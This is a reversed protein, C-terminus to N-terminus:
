HGGKARQPDDGAPPPTAPGQGQGGAFPDGHQRTYHELSLPASRHDPMAPNPNRIRALYTTRPQIDLFGLVSYNREQAKLQSVRSAPDSLDGFVIAEAPCAQACAPTITGDPVKVQDTPGAKIKQAIKAQEIRQVCYTCKEMVGRMRITVEPNKLMRVLDLEDESRRALPGRYLHQIPRKNYDFFNFRRVKYPCNNSCYRTGVCRNYAMVNLGEEDHVTANVPCVNECPANECHQCFMPQYAVQPDDIQEAAPRDPPGSFYRDIRIWHMERGRAVQERGVIPINNESQCAMVCAGCGVCANLDIAMGWQHLGNLPPRSYIPGANPAHAELGMRSKAFDPQQRYQELNAERIIPRGEMAGHDQTCGIRYDQNLRGMQRVRAGLALHLAAATRLRYANFGSGTGVRGTRERGYGLALGLTDDAMGPTIWAPGRLTRGELEVELMDFNRAGIREATKRSILIANEWTLKTIPDPMEQLWGNNNYRGDDMSYDRYFVLECTDGSPGRKAQALRNFAQDLSELNPKPEIPGPASHALFGDHLFQKWPEEFDRDEVKQRFTERVLSHPSPDPEGLIRALLEIKTMGNFLPQLLPQVPVWTGDATRADGWSELYHAAPVHWDCLAATEDEYAGLRLTTKAKKQLEAWRMEAPATYAPNAGLIVLTDVQGAELAEALHALTGARPTPDPRFRVTRGVNGLRQNLAFALAHVDEPLRHGALVLGAGRNAELDKACQRIWDRNVVAGLAAPADGPDGSGDGWGLERALQVLVAPIRSAPVRLRHDANAGTVTMLAEVMYLRAAIERAPTVRRGRAFRHIHLFADPETGLFDADLSLICRAKDLAYEPTAPAGCFASAVRSAVGVDIAEHTHWSSQPYKERLLRRLRELTPSSTEEALFYLGRGQNVAATKALQALFEVVGEPKTEDGKRRCRMARDPDYLDLISAQAFADTGGCGLPHQPNGEIKIPRGDYSKVLLPIASGRVPLATAYHQAMGHTYYEPGRAFPLITEV